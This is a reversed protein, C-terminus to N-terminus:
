ALPEWLSKLHEWRPQLYERVAQEDARCVEVHTIIFNGKRQQMWYICLKGNRYNVDGNFEPLDWDTGEKWDWRFILNYGADADGWESLFDQWSKYQFLDKGERPSVYYNSDSCYYAHSVEWLHPTSETM